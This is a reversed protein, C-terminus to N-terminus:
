CRQSSLERAARSGFGSTMAHGVPSTHTNLRELVVLRRSERHIFDQIQLGEEGVKVRTLSRVTRIVGRHTM